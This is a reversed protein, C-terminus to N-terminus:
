GTPAFDVTTTADPTIDFATGDAPQFSVITTDEDVETDDVDCTYAATYSGEALFGATYGYSVGDDNLTVMASTLPDGADGDYDDPTVTGTYIYVAPAGNCNSDTVLQSDVTGQVTGVASNDVMRLSPRLKYDPAQGPPATVSKRLDFDITFSASGSAPLVFGRNLKLGTEDGSPVYLNHVMGSDLKIYSGGAVCPTDAEGDDAMTTVGRQANVGLRVWNYQGAPMEESLLLPASDTGQQALLDVQIPPDFTVLVNDVSEDAHKFEASDFEICVKVASDVPADTVAVSVFGTAQAQPLAQVPPNDSGCGAILMTVIAPLTWHSFINKIKM